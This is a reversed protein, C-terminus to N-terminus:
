GVTEDSVYYGYIIQADSATAEFVCPDHVMVAKGGVTQVAGWADLLFTAYGAFTAETFSALVSSDAPTINNKYLHLVCSSAQQQFRDRIADMLELEGEDPVKLPM